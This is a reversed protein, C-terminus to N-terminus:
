YRGIFATLHDYPGKREGEAIEYVDVELRRLWPHDTTQTITEIEWQRQAMFVQTNIKGEPLVKADVRQAIRIQTIHNSAVWNAVTKRELSFTQNAVGGIATAIATGVTGIIVVAILMEILTFGRFSYRKV